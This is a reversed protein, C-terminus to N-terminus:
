IGIFDRLAMLPKRFIRMGLTTPPGEIKAAGRQGPKLLGDNEGDAEVLVSPLQDDSLEVDFGIREVTAPFSRLPDSDLRISVAAGERVVGSDSVPVMIRLKSREPHAVRLILQGTQVFAGVLAEPDDLVVIGDAGSRVESLELQRRLFEVEAERRRVEVKQAPIKARAEEDTYAAGELRALEALASALGGRLAEDLQRELVRTDYRFILEGESVRDGPRVALTEVVGDFPAFIYHPREPVVQAPASVTSQVPIWMLLFFFALALWLVRKKRIASGVTRRSAGLAHGFFILSHSLLKIEEAPWPKRNWRELWLAFRPGGETPHPLNVWLISTGGATELLNRLQPARANEPLSGLQVVVPAEAKRYLKRAEHVAQSFPNDQSAELHGSLRFIRKNGYLPVIVARDVPVLTHIRNVIIDGAKDPSEAAMASRALNVLRALVPNTAAAETAKGRGAPPRVAPSLDSHATPAPENLAM